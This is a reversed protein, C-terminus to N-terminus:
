GKQGPVKGFEGRSITGATDSGPLNMAGPAESEMAAVADESSPHLLEGALEGENPQGEIQPQAGPPTAVATAVQLAFARDSEMISHSLAERELLMGAKKITNQERKIFNDLMAIQGALNNKWKEATMRAVSVDKTAAAKIEAIKVSAEAKIKAVEAGSQLSQIQQNAQDLQQQLAKEKPTAQADDVLSPFFRTGDKYGLAGFIEHVAERSDMEQLLQPAIGQIAAIGMQFKQLRKIPDTSGFGVSVIINVPQDLLRFAQMWDQSKARNSVLALVKEDSEFIRELEVLDNLTERAWTICFTQLQLEAVIDANNGLLETTGVPTDNGQKISGMTAGNFQGAIEDVEMNYRDQENYSSSTVDKTDLQKVDGTPDSTMTISGPVNRMLSRSDVMQGRKVLFRNNLVLAVNDRRQNTVDNIGEQLGKVMEVPGSAYLRHPEIATSGMTYPRKRRGFVDEIPVPMSLMRTTGLTEYVYDLGEIRVINRHVWVPRNKEGQQVQSYRDLRSHERAMRVSMASTSQEAGASLLESETFERLYPVQSGYSRANKIRQALDPAFWPTMEILYPSSNIPDVWDSSPHMMLNEVPVLRIGPTDRLVVISETSNGTPQDLADYEDNTITAEEYLWEQCSIVVGQTMADHFAGMAIKFWPITSTLRYNLLEKHVEAALVNNTDNENFPQADVIDRTSFFAIACAAELKRMMARTKPRFIKSRKSYEDSYFKSGSAHRSYAHALNDEVRRRVAIDFYNKGVNFNEQAMKLFMEVSLDNFGGSSVDGGNSLPIPNKVFNDQGGGKSGGIDGTEAM